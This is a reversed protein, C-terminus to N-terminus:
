KIYVKNGGKMYYKGGKPGYRILRKGGGKLKIYKKLKGGSLNNNNNNNPSKSIPSKSNPSKSIPSKNNRLKKLRVNQHTKAQNLTNSNYNFINVIQEFFYKKTKENFKYFEYLALKFRTFLQLIIKIDIVDKVFQIFKTRIDSRYNSNEQSGFFITLLHRPDLFRHAYKGNNFNHSNFNNTNSQFGDDNPFLLEKFNERIYSSNQIMFTLLKLLDEKNHFEKYLFKKILQDNLTQQNNSNVNSQYNSNVNFIEKKIKEYFLIGTNIQLDLKEKSYTNVNNRLSSNPPVTFILPPLLELFYYRFPINKTQITSNKTHIELKDTFYFKILKTYKNRETFILKSEGEYVFLSDIFEDLNSSNIISERINIVLEALIGRDSVNFVTTTKLFNRINRIDSDINTSNKKSIELDLHTLHLDNLQNMLENYHIIVQINTNKINEITLDEIYECIYLNNILKNNYYIPTDLKKLNFPINPLYIEVEGFYTLYFPFKSLKTEDILYILLTDYIQAKYHKSFDLKMSTSIYIDSYHLSNSPYKSTTTYFNQSYDQTLYRFVFYKFKEENEKWNKYLTEISLM